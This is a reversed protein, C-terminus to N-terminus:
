LLIVFCVTKKNLFKNNIKQLNAEDLYKIKNFIDTKPNYKKYKINVLACMTFM